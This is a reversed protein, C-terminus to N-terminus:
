PLPAAQQRQLCLGRREQELGQLLQPTRKKILATEGAQHGEGGGRERLRAFPAKPWLM